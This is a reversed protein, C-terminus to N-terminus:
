RGTSRIDFDQSLPGLEGADGPVLSITMNPDKEPTM